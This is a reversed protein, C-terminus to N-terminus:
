FFSETCKHSNQQLLSASASHQLLNTFKLSPPPQLNSFVAATTENWVPPMLSSSVTIWCCTEQSGAKPVSVVRQQEKVKGSCCDIVVESVCKRNVLLDTQLSRFSWVDNHLVVSFKLTQFMRKVQKMFAQQIRQETRENLTWNSKNNQKTIRFYKCINIKRMNNSDPACKVAPTWAIYNEWSKLLQSTTKKLSKWYLSNIFLELSHLCLNLLKNKTNLAHVCVYACAWVSDMWVTAREWAFSQPTFHIGYKVLAYKGPLKQHRGATECRCIQTEQGSSFLGTPECAHKGHRRARGSGAWASRHRTESAQLRIRSGLM